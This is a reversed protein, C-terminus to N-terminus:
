NNFIGPNFVYLYYMFIIFPISFIILDIYSLKKIYDVCGHENFNFNM